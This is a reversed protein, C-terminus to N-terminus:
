GIKRNVKTEINTVAKEHQPSGLKKKTKGLPMLPTSQQQKMQAEAELAKKQELEQIRQDYDSPKAPQPRIIMHAPTTTPLTKQLNEIEKADNEKTEAQKKALEEPTMDPSINKLYDTFESKTAPTGVANELMKVPSVTRAIQKASDHAVEGVAELSEGIIKKITSM